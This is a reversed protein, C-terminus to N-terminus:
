LNQPLNLLNFLYKDPSLFPLSWQHVKFSAKLGSDDGDFMITPKNVYKWSLM